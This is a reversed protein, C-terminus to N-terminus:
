ENMMISTTTTSNHIPKPLEQGWDDIKDGAQREKGPTFCRRHNKGNDETRMLQSSTVANWELTFDM